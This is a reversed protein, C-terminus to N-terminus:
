FEKKAISFFAKFEVWKMISGSHANWDKNVVKIPLFKELYQNSKHDIKYRFLSSFLHRNFLHIM